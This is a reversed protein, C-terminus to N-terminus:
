QRIVIQSPNEVVIQPRGSFTTVLGTVCITRGNFLVEPPRKFKGRNPAEIVATFSQNPYPRDFNLYSRSGGPSEYFRAGAVLGCITVSEGVHQQGEAAPIAKVTPTPTPPTPAQQNVSPPTESATGPEEGQIVIQSLDEVVMQPKGRQDVILGTVCITKGNFLVEPAETFRPRSSGRIVVAFTQNPYPHDFNLYTPKAPDSDVYRANAVLGCVTNTEGIHEQAQEATVVEVAKVGALASPAVALYSSCTTL